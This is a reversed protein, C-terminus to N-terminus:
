QWAEYYLIGCLDGKSIKGDEELEQLANEIDKVEYDDVFKIMIDDFSPNSGRSNVQKIWGYINSKLM